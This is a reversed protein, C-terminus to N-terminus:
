INIMPKEEYNTKLNLFGSFPGTNGPISIFHVLYTRGKEV